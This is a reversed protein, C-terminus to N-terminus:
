EDLDVVFYPMGGPFMKWMDRPMLYSVLGLGLGLTLLEDVNRHEAWQVGDKTDCANLFSWGGGSEKFFAEPLESLMTKVDDKHAMLRDPNFGINAMVGEVAVINDTEKDVTKAEEDTFLSDIFVTNVNNANLRM